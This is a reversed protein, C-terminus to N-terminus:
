FEIPTDAVLDEEGVDPGPAVARRRAIVNIIDDRNPSTYFRMEDGTEDLDIFIKFRGDIKVGMTGACNPQNNHSTTRQSFVYYGTRKYPRLRYAKTAIQEGSELLLEKESLFTFTETCPLGNQVEWVGSKIEAQSFASTSFLLFLVVLFFTVVKNRFVETDTRV